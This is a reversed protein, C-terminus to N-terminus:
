ADIVALWVLAIITVVSQAYALVVREAFRSLLAEWRPNGHLALLATQMVYGAGGIVFAVSTLFLSENHSPWLDDWAAVIGAKYAIAFAFAVPPVSVSALASLRTHRYLHLSLRMSGVFVSFFLVWILIDPLVELGIALLLLRLGLWSLAVGLYFATNAMVYSIHQDGLYRESVGTALNPTTGFQMTASILLLFAFIFMGMADEFAASERALNAILVASAVSFGALTGVITTYTGAVRPIDWLPMAPASRRSWGILSTVGASLSLLIVIGAIWM